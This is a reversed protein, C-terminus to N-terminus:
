LINALSDKNYWVRGYGSVEGIENTLLLNNGNSKLLMDPGEVKVINTLFNKNHFIDCNSQTDLLIWSDKLGKYHEELKSDETQNFSM